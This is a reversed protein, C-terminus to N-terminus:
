RQIAARDDDSKCPWVAGTFRGKIMSMKFSRAQPKHICIHQGAFQFNIRIGGGLYRIGESSLEYALPLAEDELRDKRIRRAVFQAEQLVRSRCSIDDDKAKYADRTRLNGFLSYRHSDRLTSMIYGTLLQLGPIRPYQCIEPTCQACHGTHPNEIIVVQPMGEPKNGDIFAPLDNTQM